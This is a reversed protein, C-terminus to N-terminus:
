FGIFLKNIMYNGPLTGPDVRFYRILMPKPLWLTLCSTVSSVSHTISYYPMFVPLEETSYFLQFVTEEPAQISIQVAKVL